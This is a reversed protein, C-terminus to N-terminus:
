GSTRTRPQPRHGALAVGFLYLWEYIIVRQQLFRIPAEALSKGWFIYIQNRASIVHWVNNLLQNRTYARNPHNLFFELLRYETPGLSVPEGEISVSHSAPDMVLGGARLPEESSGDASRRLLSRIRAVLERPSFPKSVYDDAGSDLGKITNEEEGKATLMIVPLDRMQEDRRWRRLLEIGSVEPMMWDLLVLDPHSDTVCVQAERANQAELCDFDAMELAVKLMDRISREDDVILITKRDM